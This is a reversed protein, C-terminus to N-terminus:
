QRAVAAESRQGNAYVGHVTKGLVYYLGEASTTVERSVGTSLQTVKVSARPVLASSVDAIVGQTASNFRATALHGAAGSLPIGLSIKTFFTM